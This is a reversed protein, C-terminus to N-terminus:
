LFIQAIFCAYEYWILYILVIFVDLGYIAESKGVFKLFFELNESNKYKLIIFLPNQTMFQNEGGFTFYDKQPNAIKRKLNLFVDLVFSWETLLNLTIEGLFKTLIVTGCLCKCLQLIYFVETVFNSNSFHPSESYLCFQVLSNGAVEGWLCLQMRYRLIILIHKTNDAYLQM